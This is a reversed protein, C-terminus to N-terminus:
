LDALIQARRAQVQEVRNELRIRHWLLVIAVWIYMGLSVLLTTQIRGTVNFDGLADPQTVSPGVVVPHIVDPRVRIIFVTLLVSSFALIAYVAAFRRRQDPDEIAARLFLYAAYTLSMIAITTLRPDWTWFTGWVPRAWVAGTVITVTSLGLGVEVGAVGLHDWKIARTRLYAMGAFLAVFFALFAGAFSGVHIYFLRQVEGMTVETGPYLFNMLNSGLFLLAGSITMIWLLRTRNEAYAM